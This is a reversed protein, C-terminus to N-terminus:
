LIGGVDFAADFGALTTNTKSTGVLIIAVHTGMGTAGDFSGAIDVGDNWKANSVPSTTTYTANIATPQLTPNIDVMQIGDLNGWRGINWRSSNPDSPASPAFGIESLDFDWRAQTMYGPLTGDTLFYPKILHLRKKRAAGLSQFATMLGWAIPAPLTGDLKMGDVCGDNVCVRNDFTGFYLKGRWQEM